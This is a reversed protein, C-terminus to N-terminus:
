APKWTFLRCELQGNYITHEADARIGLIRPFHVEPSIVVVTSERFFDLAFRFDDLWHEDEEMRVGYPPNTLILSGAPPAEFLKHLETRSFILSGVGAREANDRAISLVRSDSDSGHITALEVDPIPMEYDREEQWVKAATEDFCLWRQFGFNRLRGSVLGKVRMAAEICITGSGCMPDVLHQGPKYGSLRLMAAALTERLPAEGHGLRYGRKSLPAGALDAFLEAQNRLIRVVVHLDPDSREVDPRSGYRARLQDVIADKTKQAVFGSHTLESDKLAGTVSLTRGSDLFESWDVKSTGEYLAEGDPASFSALRRLVRVAIRSHLCVRMAHKLDGGFHVGGRDARVKPIDLERLEDRLVGETGAAATAFYPREDTM